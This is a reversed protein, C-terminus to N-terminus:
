ISKLKELKRELPQIDERRGRQILHRKLEEVAEELLPLVEKLFYRYVEEETQELENTWFEIRHELEEYWEQVPMQRLEKRWREIEEQFRESWAQLERGSQEIWVSISSSGEVEAGDPLPTGGETLHILVVSRNGSRQPDAQILFRSQDTVVKRFDQKIRVRVAYRGNRTVEVAQVTGVPKEKWFVRDEPKLGGSDNYLVTLHLERSCAPIL